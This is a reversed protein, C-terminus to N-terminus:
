HDVVGRLWEEPHGLNRHDGQDSSKWTQQLKRSAETSVYFREAVEDHTAETFVFPAIRAESVRRRMQGILSLLPM